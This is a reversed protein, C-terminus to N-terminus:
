WQPDEVTEWPTMPTMILPRSAAAFISPRGEEERSLVGPPSILNCEASSAACEEAQDKPGPHSNVAERSGTFM